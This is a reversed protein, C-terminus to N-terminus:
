EQGSPATLVGRSAQLEEERLIARLNQARTLLLAILADHPRRCPFSVTTRDDALDLEALKAIATAIAPARSAEDAAVNDAEVRYTGPGAVVVRIAQETRTDAVELGPRDIPKAPDRKSAELFLRRAAAAHWTGCTFRVSTSSGAHELGAMECMTDAVQALREATGDVASYSHVTACPCGDGDTGLYLGISISHHHPDMSVLEARRGLDTRIRM